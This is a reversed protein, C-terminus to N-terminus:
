RVLIVPYGYGMFDTNPTLNNTNNIDSTLRRNGYEVKDENTDILWFCARSMYELYPGVKKPVYAYDVYNGNRGILRQGTITGGGVINQHVCYNVLEDYQEKTPINLKATEDYPLYVTNGDKDKLYGAAWKTGSPLGLDVYEVGDNLEEAPITPKVQSSGDNYGANYGETYANEVVSAMAELVKGEAYKKLEEKNM